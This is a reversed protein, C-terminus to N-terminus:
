RHKTSISNIRSSASSARTWEAQADREVQRVDALYDALAQEITTITNFNTTGVAENGLATVASRIVEVENTKNALRLANSTFVLSLDEIQEADGKSAGRFDASLRADFSLDSSGARHQHIEVALTNRGEVLAHSPISRERMPLEEDLSKVAYTRHDVLGSPMNERLVEAGNLYVIAGDDRLLKLNVNHARAANIVDFTSRFYAAPYKNEADPGYGVTTAEDDEGYGLQAPGNEWSTDDFTVSTWNTGPYTGDDHYKWTHGTPIFVASSRLPLVHIANTARGVLARIKSEMSMVNDCKGNIQNLTRQASKIKNDILAVRDRKVKDAKSEKDRRDKVNLYAGAVVIVLVITALYFVARTVRRGDSEGEARRHQPWPKEEGDREPISPRPSRGTDHTPETTRTETEGAHLMDVAKRMENILPVYTRHRGAPQTTMMRAIINEVAHNVYPRVDHLQRPAENLRANVVALPDDGKFPPEGALAHYLTAGLSYMDAREDIAERRVKEPAIYYPTGWVGEFSTQHIFGALGFDVLKAHMREDLVINEPKVDGHMLGIREAAGLAQAVEYGIRMVLLENLQGQEYILNDLGRGDVFEMVILLQGIEKGFSHVQVIHPHSLQAAAKAERRFTDVLNEDESLEGRMVKVAVLRDLTEDIARYVGGMGGSGIQDLLLFQGLRGPITLENGCDPCKANDFPDLDTVSLECGCAGCTVGAVKETIIGFSDIATLAM